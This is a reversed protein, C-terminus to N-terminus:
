KYLVKSACNSPHHNAGCSIFFVMFKFVDFIAPIMFLFYPLGYYYPEYIFWAAAYSAYVYAAQM